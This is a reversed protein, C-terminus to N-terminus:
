MNALLPSSNPDVSMAERYIEWVKDGMAVVDGPPSDELMDMTIKGDFWDLEVAARAALISNQNPAIPEGTDPYDDSNDRITQMKRMWAEVDKTKLEIM